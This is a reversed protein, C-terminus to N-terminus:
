RIDIDPLEDYTKVSCEGSSVCRCQREPDPRVDPERETTTVRQPRQTVPRQTIPKQTIPQATSTSQPSTDAATTVEILPGLPDSNIRCCALNSAGCDKSRCFGWRRRIFRRRRRKRARDSGTLVDSKRYPRVCHRAVIRFAVRNDTYPLVLM